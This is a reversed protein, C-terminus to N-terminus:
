QAIRSIYRNIKSVSVHVRLKKKKMIDLTPEFNLFKLIQICFVYQFCNIKLEGIVFAYLSNHMKGGESYVSIDKHCYGLYNRFKSVM